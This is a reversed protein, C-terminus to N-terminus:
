CAANFRLRLVHRVFLDQGDPSWAIGDVHVTADEDGVDTEWVKAGQNSNWLSIRDLGGLRSILLVLDKDPCCSTSIVRSQAPIQVNALPPFANSAM